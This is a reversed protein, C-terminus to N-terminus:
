ALTSKAAFFAGPNESDTLGLTSDESEKQKRIGVKM